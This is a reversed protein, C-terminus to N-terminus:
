LTKERVRMCPTVLIYEGVRIVKSRQIVGLNKPHKGMVLADLMLSLLERLLRSATAVPASGSGSNPGNFYRPYQGSRGKTQILWYCVFTGPALIDQKLQNKKESGDSHLM